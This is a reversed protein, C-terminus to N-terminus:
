KGLERKDEEKETYIKPKATPLVLPFKGNIIRDKLDEMLSVAGNRDSQRLKVPVKKNKFKMEGLDGIFAKKTCLRICTGCNFCKSEDIGGEITFASMPCGFEVPCKHKHECDDCFKKKHFPTVNVVLNNQKWVQGYDEVQM